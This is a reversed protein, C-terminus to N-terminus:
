KKGKILDVVEDLNGAKKVKKEKKDDQEVDERREEGDKLEPYLYHLEEKSRAMATAVGDHGDAKREKHAKKADDFSEHETAHHKGDKHTVAFFKSKSKPM